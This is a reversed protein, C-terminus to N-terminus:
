GVSFDDSVDGHDVAYTPRYPRTDLGYNKNESNQGPTLTKFADRFMFLRADMNDISSLVYAEPVAPLVVAGWERRGHHSLILHQLVNIKEPNCIKGYYTMEAYKSVLEAGIYLHSKLVEDPAVTAIGFATTDYGYIKGIDHLATGCVLVERDLDTYIDAIADACRVMMYTHYLLGGIHNHHMGEAASWTKFKEYNDSLIKLVLNCLPSYATDGSKKQYDASAKRVLTCIEHYMSDLDYPPYVLFDRQVVNKDQTLCINEVKFSKNGAYSDVRLTVDVISGVEISKQAFTAVSNEFMKANRVCVGDLFDMKVYTTGNKALADELHTILVPRTFIAGVSASDLDQYKADIM